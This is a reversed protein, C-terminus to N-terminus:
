DDTASDRKEGFDTVKINILPIAVAMVIVALAVIMMKRM